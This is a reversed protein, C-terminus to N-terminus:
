RDSLTGIGDRNQQGQCHFTLKLSKCEWVAGGYTSEVAVNGAVHATSAIKDLAAIAGSPDGAQGQRYAADLELFFGREHFDYWCEHQRQVVHAAMASAFDIPSTGRLTRTTVVTLAPALDRAFQDRRAPLYTRPRFASWPWSNRPEGRSIKEWVNQDLQIASWFVLKREVDMHVLFTPVTLHRALYDASDMELKQSVFSGDASYGSTRSGKLQVNFLLGTSEGNRFVEVVYDRGYDRENRSIGWDAFVARFLADAESDIVHRDPREM